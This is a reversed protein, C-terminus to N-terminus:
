ANAKHLAEDRTTPLAGAPHPRKGTQKFHLYDALMKQHTQILPPLNELSFWAVRLADDGAQLARADLISAMYVISLASCSRDTQLFSYVTFLEGPQVLSGTEELVERMAARVPAENEDVYGGPVAWGFPAIGRDILLIEGQQNEIIVDVYIKM